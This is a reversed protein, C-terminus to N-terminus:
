CTRLNSRIIDQVYQAINKKEEAPLEDHIVPKSIVVYVETPSIRGKNAEMIKYTGSIAVPVIPVHAKEALRLSGKKFEAMETKRSRTGEPFIVLSRGGKLIEIGENITRLSQKIDSRDIFVSGMKRMWGSVIPIKALEIKAVFGKPKDIAGLLIGIDFNSQHNSVFLVAGERPVNEQGQIHLKMGSAKILTGAWWYSIKHACQWQAKEKDFLGLLHWKILYLATYLISLVLVIYFYVTRFM